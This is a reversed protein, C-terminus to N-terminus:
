RQVGRAKRSLPSATRPLERARDPLRRARTISDRSARTCAIPVSPARGSALWEIALFKQSREILHRSKAMVQAARLALASARDRKLRHLRAILLNRPLPKLLVADCGEILADPVQEVHATTVLVTAPATLAKAARCVQLGDGDALKLDTVVFCHRHHSNLSELGRSVSETLTVRFEPGCFRAYELAKPDSDVILLEPMTEVSQAPPWLAEAM